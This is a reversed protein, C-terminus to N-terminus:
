KIEEPKIQRTLPPYQPDMRRLTEVLLEAVALDRYWKHDAPIVQWPAAATATKAIAASWGSQYDDWQARSSLDAESLKWRKSPDELRKLLRQKQEAKSIHLFCKVLETGNDALMEEFRCIHACRRDREAPDILGQVLDSVAAEYYSRNFIGIMGREPTHPHARWLFDHAMEEATPLKFAHTTLGQPTITSFLRRITGDKGATDMGQLVLLISGKRSAYLRDQLEELTKQLGALATAAAEKEPKDACDTPCASLLFGAPLDSFAHKSM